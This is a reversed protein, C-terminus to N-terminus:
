VVNSFRKLLQPFIIHLIADEYTTPFDPTSTVNDLYTKAVVLLADDRLFQIIYAREYSNMYLTNYEELTIDGRACLQKIEEKILPEQKEKLKFM